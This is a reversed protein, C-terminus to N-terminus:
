TLDYSKKSNEEIERAAQNVLKKFDEEHINFVEQVTMLMDTIEIGLNHLPNELQKYILSSEKQATDELIDVGDQMSVLIYIFHEIADKHQKPVTVEEKVSM